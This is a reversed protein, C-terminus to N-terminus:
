KAMGYAEVRRSAIASSRRLKQKKRNSTWLRAAVPRITSRAMIEM